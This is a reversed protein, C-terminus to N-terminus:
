SWLCFPHGAPDLMIRPRAPDRDPLQPAAETAGCTTAWAVGAVGAPADLVLGSPRLPPRAM